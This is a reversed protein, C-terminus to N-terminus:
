LGGAAEAIENVANQMMEVGVRLRAIAATMRGATRYARRDSSAAAVGRRQRDAAPRVVPSRSRERDADEPHEYCRGTAM